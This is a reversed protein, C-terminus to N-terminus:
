GCENSSIRFREAIGVNTFQTSGSPDIISEVYQVATVLQELYALFAQARPPIVVDNVIEQELVKSAVTAIVAHVADLAARVQGLSTPTLPEAKPDTALVLDAHSIRRNRWPRAFEASKVAAKVTREVRSQLDPHKTLLDPNNCFPPIARVSLNKRKGMRARDTLRTLHLLLDYWLIRQIDWMFGGSGVANLLKVTEHDTFLVRYEKFRTLANLWDNRVGYFVAGFEEGLKDQYERKIAEVM